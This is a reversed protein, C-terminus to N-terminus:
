VRRQRGHKPRASARRWETRWGKRWARTTSTATPSSILWTPRLPDILHRPWSTPRPRPPGCARTVATAATTAGRRRCPSHLESHLVVTARAAAHLYRQRLSPRYCYSLCDIIPAQPLQAASLPLVIADGTLVPPALQRGGMERLVSRIFQGPVSLDVLDQDVEVLPAREAHLRAAAGSTVLHRCKELLADALAADGAVGHHCAVFAAAISANMLTPWKAAKQSHQFGEEDVGDAVHKHTAHRCGAHRLWFLHVELDPSILFTSYKQPVPVAGRANM